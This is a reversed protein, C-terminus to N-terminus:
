RLALHCVKWTGGSGVIVVVCLWWGCDSIRVARVCWKDCLWICVGMVILLWGFVVGIAAIASGVTM